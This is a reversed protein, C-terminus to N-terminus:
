KNEMIVHIVYQDEAPSDTRVVASPEHDLYWEQLKLEIKTVLTQAFGRRVPAQKLVDAMQLDGYSVSATVPQRQSGLISGKQRVSYEFGNYGFTMCIEIEVNQMYENKDAHDIMHQFALSLQGAYNDLVPSAYFREAAKQEIEKEQRLREMEAEHRLERERRIREQEEYEHRYNVIKRELTPGKAQLEKDIAEIKDTLAKKRQEFAKRKNIRRPWFFILFAIIFLSVVGSIVDRIGTGLLSLLWVVLVYLAIGVVHIIVNTRYYNDGLSHTNNAENRVTELEAVLSNREETLSATEAEAIQRQEKEYMEPTKM